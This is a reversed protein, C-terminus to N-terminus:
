VISTDPTCCLSETMCVCVPVCVHIYMCIHIHVHTSLQKTTDSEKCSWPSYDVLSRQGHFKGPLFVPTPQWKRRWPIKGVWPDLRCKKWQCASKKGSLWWTDIYTHIYIWKWAEWISSTTFFRSALAPLNYFVHTRDRSQSSGRSSLMAVWELIRAQLIGHVSSGPLSCEM